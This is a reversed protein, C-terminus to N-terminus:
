KKSSRVPVPPPNKSVAPAPKASPKLVSPINPMLRTRKGSGGAQVESKTLEATWNQTGPSQKAATESSVLEDARVRKPHHSKKDPTAKKAPSKAEVQIDARSRKPSAVQSSDESDSFAVRRKLVGRNIMTIYIANGVGSTDGKVKIKLENVDDVVSRLERKFPSAVKPLEALKPGTVVDSSNSAKPKALTKPPPPPPAPPLKATAINTPSTLSVQTVANVAQQASNLKNNDAGIAFILAVSRCQDNQLLRQLTDQYLQNLKKDATQKQLVHALNAVDNLSYEIGLAASALVDHFLKVIAASDPNNSVIDKIENLAAQEDNSRAFRIALNLKAMQYTATKKTVAPLNALFEKIAQNDWKNSLLPNAFILVQMNEPNIKKLFDLPLNEPNIFAPCKDLASALYTVALNMLEADPTINYSRIAQDLLFVESPAPSFKYQRDLNYIAAALAFAYAPDKESHMTKLAKVLEDKSKTSTLEKVVNAVSQPKPM